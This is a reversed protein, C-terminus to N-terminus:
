KDTCNLNGHRISDYLIEAANCVFQIADCGIKCRDFGCSSWINLQGAVKNLTIKRDKIKKIAEDLDICETSSVCM